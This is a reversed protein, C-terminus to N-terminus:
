RLVFSDQRQVPDPTVVLLPLSPFTSGRRAAHAAIIVDSRLSVVRTRERRCNECDECDVGLWNRLLASPAQRSLEDCCAPAASSRSTAMDCGDCSQEAGAPECGVALWSMPRPHAGASLRGAHVSPLGPNVAASGIKGAPSQQM